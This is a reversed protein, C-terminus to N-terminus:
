RIAKNYAWHACFDLPFHLFIYFFQYVFAGYIDGLFLASGTSQPYSSALKSIKVPPIKKHFVCAIALAIQAHRETRDTRAEAHQVATEAANEASEARIRSCSRSHSRTVTVVVIDATILSTLGCSDCLQFRFHLQAVRVSVGVLFNELHVLVRVASHARDFLLKALLAHDVRM